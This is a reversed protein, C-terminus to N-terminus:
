PKRIVRIVPTASSCDETVNRFYMWEIDTEYRGKSGCPVTLLLHADTRDFSAPLAEPPVDSRVTLSALGSCGAFAMDGLRAVTAPLVVARLETHGAFASDTMSFSPTDPIPM